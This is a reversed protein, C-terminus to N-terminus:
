YRRNNKIANVMKFLVGKNDGVGTVNFFRM